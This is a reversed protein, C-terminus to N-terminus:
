GKHLLDRKFACKENKVKCSVGGPRLTTRLNTTDWSRHLKEFLGELSVSSYSSCIYEFDELSFPFSLFCNTGM